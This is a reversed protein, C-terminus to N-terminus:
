SAMAETRTLASEGAAILQHVDVDTFWEYSRGIRSAGLEGAIAKLIAEDALADDTAIRWGCTLKHGRRRPSTRNASLRTLFDETHGVKVIGGEFGLIYVVWVGRFTIAGYAMNAWEFYMPTRAEEVFMALTVPDIRTGAFVTM